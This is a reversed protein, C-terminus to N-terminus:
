KLGDVWKIQKEPPSLIFFTRWAKNICLKEAALAYQEPSVPLSALVPMCEEMSYKDRAEYHARKAKSTQDMSDLLM